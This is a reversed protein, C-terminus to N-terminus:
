EAKKRGPGRKKFFYAPQQVGMRTLSPTLPAPAKREQPEVTADNVERLSEIVRYAVLFSVLLVNVYWFAEHVFLFSRLAVFVLMATPTCVRAIVFVFVRVRSHNVGRHKNILNLLGGAVIENFVFDSVWPIFAVLLYANNEVKGFSYLWITYQIVQSIGVALYWFTSPVFSESGNKTREKMLLPSLYSAWIIFAIVLLLLVLSLSVIVQLKLVNRSTAIDDGWNSRFLLLWFDSDADVVEETVAWVVAVHLVYVVSFAVQFHFAARAIEKVHMDLLDLSLHDTDIKTLVSAIKTLWSWKPDHLVVGRDHTLLAAAFSVVTVLIVLMGLAFIIPNWPSQTAITQLGVALVSFIMMELLMVVVYEPVSM